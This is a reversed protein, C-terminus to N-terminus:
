LTATVKYENDPWDIATAEIITGAFSPNAVTTKYRWTLGRAKIAEGEEITDGAANRIAIKVKAIEFGEKEARVSILDGIEGAYRMTDKISVKPAKIYDAIARTYAIQKGPQGKSYYARSEENEIMEKGYDVAELFREKQSEQKQTPTLLTRPQRQDVYLRNKVKRLSIKGSLMGGLETKDKNVKVNM